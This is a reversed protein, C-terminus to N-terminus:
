CRGSAKCIMNQLVSIQGMTQISTLRYITPDILRQLTAMFESVTLNRALELHVAKTSLFIFVCMYANQTYSIKNKGDTVRYHIPGAYDLGTATFRPTPMVRAEPLEAM